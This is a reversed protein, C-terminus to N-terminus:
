RLASTADLLTWPCWLKSARGARDSHGRHADRARACTPCARSRGCRTHRGEGNVPALWSGFLLPVLATFRHWGTQDSADGAESASKPREGLACRRQGDDNYAARAAQALSERPLEQPVAVLHEDGAAAAGAHCLRHCRQTALGGAGGVMEGCGHRVAAAWARHSAQRLVEGGHLGAARHINEDGVRAEAAAELGKIFRICAHQVLNHAGGDAASHQGGM